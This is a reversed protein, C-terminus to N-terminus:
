VQVGLVHVERPKRLDFLQFLHKTPPAPAGVAPLAILISVVCGAVVRGVVFPTVVAGWAVVISRVPLLGSRLPSPAAPPSVVLGFTMFILLFCFSVVSKGRM